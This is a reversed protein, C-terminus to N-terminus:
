ITWWYSPPRAREKLLKGPGGLWREELGYLRCSQVVWAMM